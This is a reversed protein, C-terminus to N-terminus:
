NRHKQSHRYLQPLSLCSQEELHQDHAFMTETIHASTYSVVKQAKTDTIHVVLRCYFIM